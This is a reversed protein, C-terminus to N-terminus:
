RSTSAGFASAIMRAHAVDQLTDLLQNLAASNADRGVPVVLERSVGNANAIDEFPEWLGHDDLIVRSVRRPRADEDQLAIAITFRNLLKPFRRPDSCERRGLRLKDAQDRCTPRRTAFSVSM